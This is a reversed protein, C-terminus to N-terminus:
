WIAKEQAEPDLTRVVTQPEQVCLTHGFHAEPCSGPCRQETVSRGIGQPEGEGKDDTKVAAHHTM